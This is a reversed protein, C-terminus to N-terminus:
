ADWTRAEEMRANTLACSLYGPISSDFIDNGFLVRHECVQLLRSLAQDEGTDALTQLVSELETVQVRRFREALVRIDALCVGASRVWSLWEESTETM